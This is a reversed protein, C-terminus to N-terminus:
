LVNSRYCAMDDHENNIQVGALDHKIALDIHNMGVNGVCVRTTFMISNNPVTMSAAKTGAEGAVFKEGTTLELTDVIWTRTIWPIEGKWSYARSTTPTGGSVFGTVVDSVTTNQWDSVGWAEGSSGEVGHGDAAGRRRKGSTPHEWLHQPKVNRVPNDAGRNSRNVTM